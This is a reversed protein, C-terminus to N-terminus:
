PRLSRRGVKLWGQRLIEEGVLRAVVTHGFPTLHRGDPRFMEEQRAAFDPARVVWVVPRHVRPEGALRDTLARQFDEGPFASVLFLIRAQHEDALRVFRELNAALAERASPLPRYGLPQWGGFGDAGYFRLLGRRVLESRYLLRLLGERWALLPSDGALVGPGASTVTVVMADPRYRPVIRTALGVMHHPGFGTVCADIVEM